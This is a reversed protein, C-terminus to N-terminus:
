IDKVFLKEAEHFGMRIYASEVKHPMSDVLFAMRIQTCGNQKAWSEFERYLSIGRGRAEPRVYWFLEAAVKEGSNIDEYKAGGIAGLMYSGDFIAIIIGNGSELLPKWTREFKRIDFGRLHATSSYFQQAIDEMGRLENPIVTRLEPTIMVGMM